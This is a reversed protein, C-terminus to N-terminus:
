PAAEPWFWIFLWPVLFQTAVWIVAMFAFVLGGIMVREGWDSRAQPEEATSPSPSDGSSASDAVRPSGPPFTRFAAAVRPRTMYVIQGITWALFPVFFPLGEKLTLLAATGLPLGAGVSRQQIAIFLEFVMWALVYIMVAIALKRGWQRRLLLGVFAALLGAAMMNGLVKTIVEYGLWPDDVARPGPNPRAIAFVLLAAVILNLAAFVPVMRLRSPPREGLHAGNQARRAAHIAFAARVDRNTLAVFCWIGIPLGILNGPTVVMVLVSAAMAAAYSELRMMKIAGYLITGSLALGALGILMLAESSIMETGTLLLVLFTIPLGIWNLIGTILLAVAPRRVEELIADHGRKFTKDPTPESILQVDTKVESAHQYRRQPDAELTRMVVEDLRVDVEVRRSPPEFRGIPLQGTLMEYFVVGLSYIDARHDVDHSGHMQEPAMYHPTGMVQRTGTLTADDASKGLLRALGFDAIKVQGRRNVLINEPKIDRHVIGEDHAFQLAECIQPVIALAQAPALGGGRILERLNTGDVYEMALYFLGDASGFDYVDVINHHNLQALARAERGFREAFAPDRGVEPPLIKLAVLRDLQKQRAKYVAGMGGKGIFELIEFQPFHGALVSPDPAGFGGEYGATSDGIRSDGAELSQKLLCQPCLGGPADAPLPAGCKPCHNSEAM